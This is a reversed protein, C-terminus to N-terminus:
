YGGRVQSFMQKQKDTLLMGRFESLGDNNFMQGPVDTHIEAMYPMMAPRALNGGSDVGGYLPAWYPYKKITKGLWMLSTYKPSWSIVSLEVEGENCVSGNANCSIARTATGTKASFQWGGPVFSGRLLSNGDQVNLIRSIQNAVGPDIAKDKNKYPANDGLAMKEKYLDRDGYKISVFPTATRLNGGQAITNTGTLHTILSVDESGISMSSPNTPDVREYTKKDKNWALPGEMMDQKTKMYRLGMSNTWDNFKSVANMGQEYNQFNANVGNGGLWLAKAAGVNYSQALSRSLSQSGPRSLGFNNLNGQRGAFGQPNNNLYTNPHVGENLAFSYDYIKFTSGVTHYASNNTDFPSYFGIQNVQGSIEENNMDLSGVMAVIGGTPGDLTAGAANNGGVGYINARKLNRELKEQIKPDLTTQITYGGTRLERVTRDYILSGYQATKEIKQIDTDADTVPNPAIKDGKATLFKYAMEQIVYDVFHPYLKFSESEEIKIEEAKYVELQEKSIFTKESKRINKKPDSLNELCTNKRDLFYRYEESNPDTLNSNRNPPRQPLGALFCAQPLTVDKIDKKFYTKAAKQVGHANLGFGVTNLYMNLVQDHTVDESSGLKYSSIIEQIKRDISQEDKQTINKVLQQYIGSAGRCNDGRSTLCEVGAGVINSLPVGNENYYFQYDELALISYQMSLPIYNKNVPKETLTEMATIIERNEKDYMEYMLSGDSALIKTSE